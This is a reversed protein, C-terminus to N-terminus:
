PKKLTELFKTQLKEKYRKQARAYNPSKEKLEEKAAEIEVNKDELKQNLVSHTKYLENTNLVENRKRILENTIKEYEEIISEEENEIKTVVKRSQGIEEKIKDSQLKNQYEEIKKEYDKYDADLKALDRDIRSCISDYTEKSMMKPTEDENFFLEKGLNVVRHTEHIAIGVKAIAGATKKTLGSGVAKLFGRGGFADMYLEAGQFLANRLNGFSFEHKKDWDDLATKSAHAAKLLINLQEREAGITTKKAIIEDINKQIENRREEVFKIQKFLAKDGDKLDKYREELTKKYDEARTLINEYMKQDAELNGIEVRIKGIKGVIEIIETQLKEIEAKLRIKADPSALKEEEQKKAIEKEKDSLEQEKQKLQEKLESINKENEQKQTKIDTIKQEIQELLKKIKEKQEQNLEQKEYLTKLEKECKKLEGEWDSKLGKYDNITQDYKDIAKDIENILQGVYKSSPEKPK